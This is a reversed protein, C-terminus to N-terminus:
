RGSNWSLKARVGGKSSICAVVLDDGMKADQSLAMAAYSHCSVFMSNKTLTRLCNKQQLELGWRDGKGLSTYLELQTRTDTDAQRWTALVECDGREDCSDPLGFCTKNVDCGRYVPHVVAPRPTPTTAATTTTTSTTATTSAPTTAVRGLRIVETKMGVWYNAYDQAVSWTLQAETVEPSGLGRRWLVSVSSKPESSVHTVTDQCCLTLYETAERVFVLRSM